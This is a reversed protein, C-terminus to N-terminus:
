IVGIRRLIADMKQGVINRKKWLLFAVISASGIVLTKIKISDTLYPILESLGIYITVIIAIVASNNDKIIENTKVINDEIDKMLLDIGLAMKVKKDIIVPQFSDAVEESFYKAKLIFLNELNNRARNQQMFSDDIIIKDLYQLRLKIYFNILFILYTENNCQHVVSRGGDNISVIALSNLSTIGSWLSWLRIGYRKINNRIYDLDQEFKRNNTIFDNATSLHNSCIHLLNITVDTEHQLESYSFLLNDELAKPVDVHIATIYKAYKSRGSIMENFQVAEGIMSFIYDNFSKIVNYTDIYVKKLEEINPLYDDFSLIRLNKEDFYLCSPNRLERNVVSSINQITDKSSTFFSIIAINNEFFVVEITLIMCSSQKIGDVWIEYKKNIDKSFIYNNGLLTEGVYDTLKSFKHFDSSDDKHHIWESNKLAKIVAKTSMSFKYNFPYMFISTHGGKSAKMRGLEKISEDWSLRLNNYEEIKKTM